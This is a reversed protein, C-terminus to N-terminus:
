EDIDRRMAEVSTMLETLERTIAAQRQKNISLQLSSILDKSNEVANNLVMLRATLEGMQSNLLLQYFRAVLYHRFMEDCLKEPSPELIMEELERKQTFEEPVPYLQYITPVLNISGRYANYAVYMGTDESFINEFSKAAENFDLKYLSLKVLKVGPVQKLFEEAKALINPNFSGCLGRNATMVVMVKKSFERPEVRQYLVRRLPRLYIEAMAYKEKVRQFRVRTVVQMATLISNLSKIARFRSRLKLLSM